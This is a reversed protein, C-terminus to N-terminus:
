QMWKEESNGKRKNSLRSLVFFVDSLRNVYRFIENNIEEKEKLKLIKRETRRAIVRCIDLISAEKNEFGLIFNKLPELEKEIKTILNELYTVDDSTITVNKERNFDTMDASMEWLNTQIKKLIKKIEEDSSLSKAFGTFSNLEDITGIVEIKESTKMIKNGIIDTEDSDKYIKM